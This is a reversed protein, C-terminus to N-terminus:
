CVTAMRLWPGAAVDKSIYILHSQERLLGLVHVFATFSALLPFSVCPKSACSHSLPVPLCPPASSRPPEKSGQLWVLNVLRSIVIRRKRLTHHHGGVNLAFV